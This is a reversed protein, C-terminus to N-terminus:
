LVFKMIIGITYFATPRYCIARWEEEKERNRRKKRKKRPETIGKGNSVVQKVISKVVARARSEPAVAETAKGEDSMVLSAEEAGEEDTAQRDIM